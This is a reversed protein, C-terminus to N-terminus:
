GRQADRQASAIRYTRERPVGFERAVRAAAKSPSDGGALAAAIAEELDAPDPSSPEDTQGVDLVLTIEGRAGTGALRAHLEALSSEQVEEYRKTLERCMAVPLDGLWQLLEAVREEAGHPPLYVVLTRAAAAARRLLRERRARREPMFGIFTVPQRVFSVVSLATVLASPGPVPVVPFGEARARAILEPGPDSIGPTGADSILAVDGRRLRAVIADERSEPSAAHYSIVKKGAGIHSLLKRARRTDEAVVAEVERLVRAARYTLDELNGIPTAVVFLTGM